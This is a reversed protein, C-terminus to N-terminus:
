GLARYITTRSVNFLRALEAIPTGDKHLNQVLDRQQKTLAPPRGFKAGRERAAALGELTRARILAREYQAFAGTISFLLQGGAQTTDIAETLSRFQIGRQGLEEITQILDVLSRGLRDIRTVTLTDGRHLSKLCARWEPREMNKGSAHDVYIVDAGHAQLMEIQAREDQDLTSVRAYGTIGM